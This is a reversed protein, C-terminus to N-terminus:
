TKVKSEEYDMEDSLEFLRQHLVPDKTSNLLATLQGVCGDDLMAEKIERDSSNNVIKEGLQTRLSGGKSVFTKIPNDM